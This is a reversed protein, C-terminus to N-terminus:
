AQIVVIAQSVVELTDLSVQHVKTVLSDLIDQFVQVVTDVTVQYVVEQIVQIVLDEQTDQHVQIIELGDQYVLIVQGDQPVLVM